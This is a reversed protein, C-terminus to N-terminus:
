FKDYKRTNLPTSTKGTKLREFASAVTVYDSNSEIDLSARRGPRPHLPELSLGADSASEPASCKGGAYAGLGRIFARSKRRVLNEILPDQRGTNFRATSKVVELLQDPTMLGALARAGSPNALAQDFESQFNSRAEDLRQQAAQVEPTSTIIYHSPPMGM